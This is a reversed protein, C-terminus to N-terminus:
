ITLIFEFCCSVNAILAATSLLFSAFGGKSKVNMHKVEKDPLSQNTGSLM